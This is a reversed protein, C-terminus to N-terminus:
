GIGLAVRGRKGGDDKVATDQDHMGSLEHHRVEYNKPAAYFEVTRILDPLSAIKNALDMAEIKGMRSQRVPISCIEEGAMGDEYVLVQIFDTDECVVWKKQWPASM